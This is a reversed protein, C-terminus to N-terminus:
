SVTSADVNTIAPLGHPVCGNADTGGTGEFYDAESHFRRAALVFPTALLAITGAAVYAASYGHRDSYVGLGAQGATAGAGGIMSDFSIVTAREQSPAINNIFAQRVPMQVGMAVASVALFFLALAFNSAWGM